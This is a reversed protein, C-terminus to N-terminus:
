LYAAFGIRLYRMWQRRERYAQEFKGLYEIQESTLPGSYRRRMRIENRLFLALQATSRREMYREAPNSLNIVM